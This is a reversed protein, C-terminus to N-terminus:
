QSQQAPPYLYFSRVANALLHWILVDIGGVFISSGKKLNLLMQRPEVRFSTQTKVRM